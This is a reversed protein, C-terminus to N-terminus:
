FEVRLALQIQRSTTATAQVQGYASGPSGTSTFVQGDPVQFNSRNMINFFEARFVIQAGEGVSFYKHISFDLTAAGPGNGTNRGLNGFTGARRGDALTIVQPIFFESGDGFWANPDGTNPSNDEGPVLNPRLRGTSCTTCTIRSGGEINVPPGDFLSIIANISWGEILKAAFGSTNAGFSRGPGFPLEYIGNASFVHGVSYPSRGQDIRHDLFNSGSDSSNLFEGRNGSIGGGQDIMRQWQYSLQYSFGSGFRKRLGLKLANYWSNSDWSSIKMQQFNSNHRGKVCQPRSGGTVSDCIFVWQGDIFTPLAHNQDTPRPIHVGRSGAYTATVVTSPTIEQQLTLSWQMIYPQQPDQIASGAPFQVAAHTPDLRRLGDPFTNVYIGNCSVGNTLPGGCDTPNHVAEDLSVRLAFPTRFIQSIYVWPLLQQHFLGFGGRLSFKGSGTPDWAFAIRPSFNKLSPNAFLPNGVDPVTQFPGSRLNSLRGNVETPSTIFEYRVGLNLTFNPKLQFDDQLYFGFLSQRMGAMMETGTEPGGRVDGVHVSAELFEARLLPVLNDYRYSGSMRSAGIHNYQIRNFSAGMKLFHRGKTWVVDDNLQFSNQVKLTPLLTSTGFDEIGCGRCNLLGVGGLFGTEQARDQPMFYLAPDIEWGPSEFEDSDLYSRTFGFRLENLLSPSVIHKEELTLYQYRTTELRSYRVSESVNTNEADSFTYRVFFSDSDSFQHDVKVVFYDENTPQRNPFFYQATGNGNEPGNPIPYLDIYPQIRAPIDIHCENGVRESGGCQPRGRFRLPVIGMRADENPFNSFDTTTLRERLGEYSGFVFTKDKVIPMGLTFGFQNRKFPPVKSRELPNNFERDFFNRADLASNRHYEFLSGHVENTGSKTVALIVGGSFRGYEATYASTLVQFERITDVGLMVGAISGPTTGHQNKIDTGDLLMANESPAAGAIVIKQGTNGNVSRGNALPAVVGEQLMALEIFSRGNLPLNRIQNTNVLATVTGSSTDVLAVEASVVVQESIEGVSLTVGVVAQQGVSLSINQLVATQFGSLEARLEYDGPALQAARYRGEDDSIVTRTAETGTNRATVEVGPLVGGTEDKVVGSITGGTQQAFVGAFTFVFLFAFLFIKQYSTM